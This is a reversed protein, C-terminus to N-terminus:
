QYSTEMNAMVRMFMDKFWRELQREDMQQLNTHQTNIGGKVFSDINVTINKVPQAAGTINKTSKDGTNGSTTTDTDTDTSTSINGYAAAWPNEDSGGRAFYNIQNPGVKKTIADQQRQRIESLSPIKFDAISKALGSFDHSFLKGIVTGVQSVMEYLWVFFPRIRNYFEEFNNLGFLESFGDGLWKAAKTVGTIVNSLLKWPLTHFFMSTEFLIGIGKIIDRFVMSESYLQKIDKITSLLWDGVTVAIKLFEDGLPKVVDAKLQNLMTKWADLPQLASDYARSLEGASNTAYDINTKLDNITGSLSLIAIKAQQDFGMKEIVRSRAEATMGETAKNIDQIISLFPRVKGKDFVKVGFSEMNARITSTDFAKFVNELLTGAQESKFKQTLTAFAGSVDELSVGLGKSASVAKPLYNALDKFEAKGKNMTAFMIDYVKNIDEGSALMISTGANAVTYIDTFGAKAARLTPELAALSQKVDLGASIIQNFADPIQELPLVNRKGINVIQDSLSKLENKSLQATVNVKAMGDAWANSWKAAKIGAALFAMAAASALAYPNALSAISSGLGPVAAKIGDFAKLHSSKLGELQGKMDRVNQNLHQKARTMGSSMRNKLELILSVKAQGDM